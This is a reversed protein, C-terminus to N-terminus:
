SQRPGPIEDALTALFDEIARESRLAIVPTGPVAATTEAALDPHPRHWDWVWKLFSPSFHEPCGPPMDPRTRGHQVISRRAVRWLCRLRSAELVVVTDARELRAQKDGQTYNGEIVWAEGRIAVAHLERFDTSEVWGTNWYLQDLHIVPLGTRRGVERAFTSKGSGPSGLVAIRRPTTQRITLVQEIRSHTCGRPM